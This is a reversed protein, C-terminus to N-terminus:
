PFVFGCAERRPTETQAGVVHQSLPRRETRARAASRSPSVGPFSLIRGECTWGATGPFGFVTRWIHHCTDRMSYDKLTLEILSHDLYRQIANGQVVRMLLHSDYSASSSNWRPVCGFLWESLENQYQMKPCCIEKSKSALWTTAFGALMLQRWQFVAFLTSNTLRRM